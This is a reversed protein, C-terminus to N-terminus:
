TLTEELGVALTWGAAAVVVAAAIPRAASAYAHEGGGYYHYARDPIAHLRKVALYALLGLPRDWILVAAAFYGEALIGLGVAAAVVALGIAATARRRGPPAGLRNANLHALVSFALGGALLAAWFLRQPRWAKARPRVAYDQLVPPFAVGEHGPEV